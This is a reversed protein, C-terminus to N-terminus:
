VFQNGQRKFITKEKFPLNGPDAIFINGAGSYFYGIDKKGDKDFDYYTLVRSGFIVKRDNSKYQM